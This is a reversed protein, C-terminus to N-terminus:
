CLWPVRLSVPLLSTRRSEWSPDLFITLLGGAEVRASPQTSGMRAVLSTLSLADAGEAESERVIGSVELAKM